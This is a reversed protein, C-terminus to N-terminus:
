ALSQLVTHYELLLVPCGKVLVYDGPTIPVMQPKEPQVPLDTKPFIVKVNIENRGCLEESSRKSEGEVLVLQTSGILAMNVKAAEERFVSILEELRRQKVPAPVDDQLRHYAHTKKRM